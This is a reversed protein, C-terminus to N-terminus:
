SSSHCTYHHPFIEDFCSFINFISFRLKPRNGSARREFCIDPLHHCLETYESFTRPLKLNDVPPPVTKGGPATMSWTVRCIEVYEIHYRPTKNEMIERRKKMIARTPSAIKQKKQKTTQEAINMASQQIMDTM